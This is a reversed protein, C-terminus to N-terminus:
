YYYIFIVKIIVFCCTSLLRNINKAYIYRKKLSNDDEQLKLKKSIPCKLVSEKKRKYISESM